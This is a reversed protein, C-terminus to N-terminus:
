YQESNLPTLYRVPSAIYLNTGEKLLMRETHVSLLKAYTSESNITLDDTIYSSVYKAKKLRDVFDRKSMKGHDIRNGSVLKDYYEDLRNPNNKIFQCSSYIQNLLDRSGFGSPKNKNCILYTSKDDFVILDCIEINSLCVMDALVVNNVPKEKLDFSENYQKENSFQRNLDYKRYIEDIEEKGKKNFDLFAKNIFELYNLDLVYWSGYSLYVTLKRNLDNTTGYKESDLKFTHQFSFDIIDILREKNLLPKNDQDFMSISWKKLFFKLSNISLETKKDSFCKFVESFSFQQDTSERILEDGNYLQWKSGFLYSYVDTGVIRIDYINENKELIENCMCELAVSTSIGYSNLPVFYSMAFNSDTKYIQDISHLVKKYDKVTMLKRINLADTSIINYKKYNDVDENEDLLQLKECLNFSAKATIRRFIKSYDKENDFETFDRNILSVAQRNGIMRNETLEQIVSDTEKFLKTIINLGFNKVIIKKIYASAYGGTTAYISEEIITLMLFSVSRNKCDMDNMKNDHFYNIVADFWTPINDKKYILLYDGDNPMMIEYLKSSSEEIAKLKVTKMVSKCIEDLDFKYDSKGLVEKWIFDVDLKYISFYTEM